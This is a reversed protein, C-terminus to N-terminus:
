ARPHTKDYVARLRAVDVHTYRQTTEVSAHGLMEQISRVDAGGSLLHTAFSHRLTHPSINKAIGAEQAYEKVLQWFRQRSLPTGRTTVFLITTAKKNELLASRASALYQALVAASQDGLPVEREKAGKGFPRVLGARLDLDAVRLGVLESVRLGSGYMLELMARDRVREPEDSRPAALLRAVEQASLTTPLRRGQRRPETLRAAWDEPSIKERCLYRSWMALATGKRATTSAAMGRKHCIALYASADAVTIESVHEVGRSGLVDVFQALDSAYASLTNESLGRESALNEIFAAIAARPTM